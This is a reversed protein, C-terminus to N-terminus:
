GGTIRVPLLHADVVSKLALEVKLPASAHFPALDIKPVSWGHFDAMPLASPMREGEAGLCVMLRLPASVRFGMDLLGIGRVELKGAISHPASLCLDGGIAVGDDSILEAGRDILRLALDSKGSGSAGTLLVAMGDIAVATAHICQTM